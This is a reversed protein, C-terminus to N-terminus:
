RCRLHGAQHAADTRHLPRPRVRRLARADGQRRDVVGCRRGEVAAAPVALQGGAGGQAAGGAGDAEGAEGAGRM